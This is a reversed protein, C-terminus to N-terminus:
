RPESWAPYSSL